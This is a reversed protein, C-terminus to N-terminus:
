EIGLDKFVTEMPESEEEHRAEFIVTDRADIKDIAANWMESFELSFYYTENEVLQFAAKQRDDNENEFRIPAESVNTTM